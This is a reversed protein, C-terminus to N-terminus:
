VTLTETAHDTKVYKEFLNLVFCSQVTVFIVGAANVIVLLVWITIWWNKCPPRCFFEYLCEFLRYFTVISSCWSFRQPKLALRPVVCGLLM